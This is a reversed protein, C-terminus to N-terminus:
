YRLAIINQTYKAKRVKFHKYSHYIAM